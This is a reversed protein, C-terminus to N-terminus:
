PSSTSRSWQDVNWPDIGPADELSPFMKALKVLAATTDKPWRARRERQKRINSLMEEMSEVDPSTLQVEEYTFTVTSDLNDTIEGAFGAITKKTSMAPEMGKGRHGSLRSGPKNYPHDIM